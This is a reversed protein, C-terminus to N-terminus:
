AVARELRELGVARWSLGLVVVAVVLLVSATAASGAFDFLVFVQQDIRSALFASSPGGLIVPTIYYGSAIVFVLAASALVSPLALPVVVTVFARAFSAGLSQSARILDEDINVFSAYLPLTAFPLMSYLIGITVATDTYLIGLPEDIVGLARLTTNLVGERQFIITLAYMRVVVSTWLPFLVASWLFLRWGRSRASRLEWAIVAGLLVALGTVLAGIRLTTALSQRGAASEVFARFNHWGFTPESLALWFVRALPVAFFLVLLVVLPLV